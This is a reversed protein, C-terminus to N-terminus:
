CYLDPDGSFDCSGLWCEITHGDFFDASVIFVANSMKVKFQVELTM